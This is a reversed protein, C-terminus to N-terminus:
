KTTEDHEGAGSHDPEPTKSQQGNTSDFLQFPWEVTRRIVNVPTMIIDKALDTQITPNDLPGDIKLSTSLTGDKGLIAYGALPIKSIINSYDKLTILEADMHLTKDNFNVWGEAECNVTTGDARLQRITLLDEHMDFHVIGEKIRYGDQDFGPSSLTALAPIANVFALVNNLLFYDKVLVHSFELYGKYNNMNGKLSVNLIGGSFDAFHIFKEAFKADLGTGAFSMEKDSSEFLFHGQELRAKLLLDSGDAKFTFKLAPVLFEKVKLNIKPGTIELPVPIAPTSKEDRFTNTDVTVLYDHLNVTLKDTLSATIKNKNVSVDTERPTRIGQFQFRTIPKDELSIVTNPIDIEGSFDIADLDQMSIHINGDSFNFKQLPPVLPTIKNLSNINIKTRGDKFTFSTQQEQLRVQVTDEGFDIKLPVTIHAAQLIANDGIKCNLEEIESQLDAHRSSTDILGSVQAHLIDKYSVEAEQITIRNNRLQVTMGGTQMSIAGWNWEGPDAIFTGKINLSFEPLDFILQLDAKTKGTIQRAQFPIDYAELLQVIDKNKRTETKVNVVLRSDGVVLPDISVSSGTLDIDKYMPKELAFSLRDAQYSIDIRECQIPALDPNFRVAASTAIATGSINDPAINKLDKLPFQIRLQTVRYSQASINQSLWSLLDQDLQFQKLVGVLDTFEQTSIEADVQEGHEAIRLAGTGWPSEFGGSFQFRDKLRSYSAKGSMTVDYPQIALRTLDVLFTDQEYTIVAEMTFTDSRVQFSGNRYTIGVIQDKLTLRDIDIERVLHGWKKILPILSKPDVGDWSTKGEKINLQGLHIIFGQDLRLSLQRIEISSISLRDFEVGKKLSWRIFVGTVVLIGLFTLFIYATRKVTTSIQSEM